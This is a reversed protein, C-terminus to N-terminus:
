GFLKKMLGGITPNNTINLISDVYEQAFHGYLTFCAKVFPNGIQYQNLPRVSTIAHDFAEMPKQFDDVAMSSALAFGDQIEALVSGYAKKDEDNLLDFQRQPRETDATTYIPTRYIFPEISVCYVGFSTLERYLGQVLSKLAIKSMSYAILYPTSMVACMSTTIIIRGKCRRVFPLFTKVTRITGLTNVNFVNEIESMTSFELPSFLAIGANAVVAWLEQKDGLKKEILKRADQMSQDSGVNMGIVHIRESRKALEIANERDPFLCGAFVKYGKKAMRTALMNGFGTDCGTILIAKDGIPVSGQAGLHHEVCWRLVGGLCLISPLSWLLHLYNCGSCINYIPGWYYLAFVLFTSLFGVQTRSLKQLMDLVQKMPGM